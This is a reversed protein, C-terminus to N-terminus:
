AYLDHFFTFKDVSWLSLPNPQMSSNNGVLHMTDGFSTSSVLPQYPCTVIVNAAFMIKRILLYKTSNHCTKTELIMHNSVIAHHHMHTRMIQSKNNGPELM